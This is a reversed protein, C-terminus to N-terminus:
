LHFFAPVGKYELKLFIAGHLAFHHQDCERQENELVLSANSNANSGTIRVGAM